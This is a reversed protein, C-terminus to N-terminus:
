ESLTTSVSSFATTNNSPRCMASALRVDELDDPLITTSLMFFHWTGRSLTYSMSSMRINLLQSLGNPHFTVQWHCRSLSEPLCLNVSTVSLLTVPCVMRSNNAVPVWLSRSECM